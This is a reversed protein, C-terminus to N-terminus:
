QQSARALSLPSQQNKLMGVELKGSSTTRSAVAGPEGAAVFGTAGAIVAIVALM